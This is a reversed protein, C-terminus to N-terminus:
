AAEGIHHNTRWWEAILAAEARGDDKKRRFHHPESPWLECARQRSSSKDTTVKMARKWRSAHVLHTPIALAGLAGLISGYGEAFTWGGRQNPMYGVQEVVAVTIREGDLLERIHAGLAVGATDPMDEVWILAGGETLCAFAGGKGPDCGLIM